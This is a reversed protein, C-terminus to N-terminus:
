YGVVSCDKTEVAGTGVAVAVGDRDQKICM